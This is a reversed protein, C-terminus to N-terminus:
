QPATRRAPIHLNRTHVHFTRLTRLEQSVPSPSSSCPFCRVLQQQRLLQPFVKNPADPSPPRLGQSPPLFAPLECYNCLYDRVTCPHAIAEIHWHTDQFFVHIKPQGPSGAPKFYPYLLRSEASASYDYQISYDYKKPKQSRLIFRVRKNYTKRQKPVGFTAVRPNKHAVHVEIKVTRPFFNLISLQERFTFIPAVSFM